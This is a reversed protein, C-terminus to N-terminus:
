IYVGNLVSINYFTKNRDLNLRYIKILSFGSYFKGSVDVSELKLAEHSQPRVVGPSTTRADVAGSM